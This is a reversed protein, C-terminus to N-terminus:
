NKPIYDTTLVRFETRRNVQHAKEQLEPSELQKIFDDTLVDGLALFPHDAIM